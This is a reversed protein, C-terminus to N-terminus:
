HYASAPVTPLLYYVSNLYNDFIKTSMKEMTNDSTKMLWAYILRTEKSVYEHFLKQNWKWIKTLNIQRTMILAFRKTWIVFDTNLMKGWDHM